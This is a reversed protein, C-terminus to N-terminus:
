IEIDKIKQVVYPTEDSHYCQQPPKFDDFPKIRAYCTFTSVTQIRDVGSVLHQPPDKSGLLPGSTMSTGTSTWRINTGEVRRSWELTEEPDGGGTTLPLTLPGTRFWHTSTSHREGVGQAPTPCLDKEESSPVM